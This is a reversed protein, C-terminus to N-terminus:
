IGFIIRIIMSYSIQSVGKSGKKLKDDIYLSLYEPARANMNLFSEFEKDYFNCYVKKIEM